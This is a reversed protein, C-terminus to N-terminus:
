ININVRQLKLARNWTLTIKKGSHMVSSSFKLRIDQVWGEGLKMCTNAKLAPFLLTGTQIKWRRVMQHVSHGFFFTPSKSPQIEFYVLPPVNFKTGKSEGEWHGPRECLNWVELLLKWGTGTAACDLAYTQLQEGASITLEFGVPPMSTQRNHTNHTTLCLDRRRASWEDLPTRGVTTRRQTHGLLRMYSSVLGITISSWIPAM